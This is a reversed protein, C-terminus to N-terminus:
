YNIEPELLAGAPPEGRLQDYTWFRDAGLMRVVRDDTVGVTVALLVPM